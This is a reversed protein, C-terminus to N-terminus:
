RDSPRTSPIPPSAHLSMLWSVADPLTEGVILIHGANPIQKIEVRQGSQKARGVVDALQDPPFMRDLAGGIVLTPPRRKDPTFEAAGAIQVVGALGPSPNDSAWAQATLAGISHGIAYVRREDIKYNFSIARVLNTVAQDARRVLDVRPSVIIFGHKDALRKIAGLGHADFFTGEDGGAGHLAIIMPVAKDPHHTVSKPAYVRIPVQLEGLYVTRWYDGARNVFPDHDDEIEAIENDIQIAFDNQDLAFQMPENEIPRDSLLGNRAAVAARSQMMQENGRITVTLRNHNLTRLLDMPREAVDWHTATTRFGDATVLDVRYRGVESPPQKLLLIPSLGNTEVTFPEDVLPQQQGERIFQLRLKVPKDLAVAYMPTIKVRVGLRKEVQGVPPALRVRLARALKADISRPANPDISDTLAHLAQVTPSYQALMFNGILRDFEEHVRAREGADAIPHANWVREFRERAQAVDARTVIFGKENFKSEQTTQLVFLALLLAKALM